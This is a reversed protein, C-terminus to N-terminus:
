NAIASYRRAKRGDAGRWIIAVSMLLLTKGDPYYEITKIKHCIGTHYIKNYRDSCYLCHNM